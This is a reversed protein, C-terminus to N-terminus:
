LEILDEPYMEAAARYAGLAIILDVALAPLEDHSNSRVAKFPLDDTM